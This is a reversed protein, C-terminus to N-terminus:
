GGRVGVTFLQYFAQARQQVVAEDDKFEARAAVYDAIAPIYEDQAVPFTDTLALTSPLGTWRGLFFDPRYRRLQLYADTTYGAMEADSYRIKDADNLPIRAKDVIQQVTYSM